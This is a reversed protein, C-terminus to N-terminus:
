EEKGVSQNMYCTIRRHFDKEEYTVYGGFLRARMEIMRFATDTYKIRNNLRGNDAIELVLM